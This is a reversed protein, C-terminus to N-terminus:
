LLSDNNEMEYFASWLLRSGKEAIEKPTLQPKHIFWYEYLGIIAAAMTYAVLEFDENLIRDAKLRRIITQKILASWRHIFLPEGPTAILPRIFDRKESIYAATETWLPIGTDTNKLPIEHMNQNLQELEEIIETEITELVDFKDDFHQYFASRSIGCSQCIESVTIKDLGKKEYLHIFEKKILNKTLAVHSEILKSSM